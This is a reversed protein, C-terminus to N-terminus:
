PREPEVNVIRGLTPSWVLTKERETDSRFRFGCFPKDAYVAQFEEAGIDYVFANSGRADSVQTDNISVPYREFASPSLALRARLFEVEMDACRSPADAEELPLAFLQETYEKGTVTSIRLEHKYASGIATTVVRFTDLGMASSFPHLLTYVQKVDTGFRAPDDHHAICRDYVPADRELPATPGDTGLGNELERIRMRADWLEDARRNVLDTLELISRAQRAVTVASSDLQTCLSDVRAEYLDGLQKLNGADLRSPRVVPVVHVTNSRKDFSMGQVADGAPLDAPANIRYAPQGGEPDRGNAPVDDPGPDPVAGSSAEDISATELGITPEPVPSPSTPPNVAGTGPGDSSPTAPTSAPTARVPPPSVPIGTGSTTRPTRRGDSHFDYINRNVADWSSIGTHLICYEGPQLAPLTVEFIGHALEKIAAPQVVHKENLGAEANYNSFSGLELERGSGTVSMRAIVYQAPSTARSFSYEVSMNLNTNGGFYFYLKDVGSLDNLSRTGPMSALETQKAWGRSMANWVMNGAKQTQLNTPLLSVLKGNAARYYIGPRHPSLPDDLDAYARAPDNMASYMAQLIANSVGNAKLTAREERDNVGVKFANKDSAIVMLIFSEDEGDKVLQIIKANTLVNPGQAVAQATFILALLILLLTRHKM